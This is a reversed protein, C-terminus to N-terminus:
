QGSAIVATKPPVGGGAILDGISVLVFGEAELDPIAQELFAVTEPYPHGIGVAFGRARAIAKLREFERAITEASPDPDLFVDRRAAPIGSERAVQLAVSRATTYSDVFYLDGRDVLEDMLWRMHGPHRTLLSGRHTNIGSIHPVSVISELVSERFKQQSM